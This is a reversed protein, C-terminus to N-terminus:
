GFYRSTLGQVWGALGPKLEPQQERYQEDCFFEYLEINNIEDDLLALLEKKVFAVEEALGARDAVDLLDFRGNSAIYARVYGCAKLFKEM